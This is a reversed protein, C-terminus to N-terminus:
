QDKVPASVPTWIDDDPNYEQMEQVIKSTDEGIDKEYVTGYHNIIFTMIETNQYDAPYPIM